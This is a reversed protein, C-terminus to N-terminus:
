KIVFILFQKKRWWLYEFMKINDHVAFRSLAHTCRYYNGEVELLGSACHQMKGPDFIKNYQKCTQAFRAISQLSLCPIIVQRCLNETFVLGSEKNKKQIIQSDMCVSYGSFLMTLLLYKKSMMVRM